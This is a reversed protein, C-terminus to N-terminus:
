HQYNNLVSHKYQQLIHNDLEELYKVYKADADQNENTLCIMAQNRVESLDSNSPNGFHQAMVRNSLQPEVQPAYDGRYSIGTHHDEQTFSRFHSPKGGGTTIEQSFPQFKVRQPSGSNTRPVSHANPPPEQHDSRTLSSRGNSAHMGLHRNDFQSVSDRQLEVQYRDIHYVDKSASHAGLTTQNNEKSQSHHKSFPPTLTVRKAATNKM